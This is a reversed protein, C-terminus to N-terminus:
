RSWPSGYARTLEDVAEAPLLVPRRDGISLLIASAEELEIAADVAGAMTTGATVPGHNQLLVARFPFDLAEIDDAQRADGPPAYPILPTQGVRMVFYPTIPPIASRPSWPPLCSVAAADRSHLHVVARIEPDRRYLARHLPYEKSPRPGARHAGDVDLVALDGPDLDGLVAGTPSMYITEGERVSINGASGRSLGLEALQRGATAIAEPAPTHAM